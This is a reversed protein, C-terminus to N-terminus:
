AGKQSRKAHHTSEQELVFCNYISRDILDYFVKSWWKKGTVAITFYSEMQGNKDVGDMYINYSSILEPFPIKEIPGKLQKRNVEPLQETPAQSYTGTAHRVAKKDMWTLAFVPGNMRWVVDGRTM